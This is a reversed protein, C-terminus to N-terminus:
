PIQRLRIRRGRSLNVTRATHGSRGGSGNTRYKVPPTNVFCVELTYTYGLQSPMLPLPLLRNSARGLELGRELIPLAKDLDGQCLYVGNADDYAKLRALPTKNYKHSFCGSSRIAIFTPDLSRFPYHWAGVSHFSTQSM